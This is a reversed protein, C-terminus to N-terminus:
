SENLEFLIFSRNLVNIRDEFECVESEHLNESTDFHTIWNKGFSLRPLSFPVDEHSANLIVLLTNSTIKQGLKDVEDFVSGNFLVSMSKNDPKIWDAKKMENGQPTFWIIEKKELKRTNINKFFQSRQIIPSKKRIAILKKM